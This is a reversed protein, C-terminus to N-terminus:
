EVDESPQDPYLGDLINRSTELLSVIINNVLFQNFRICLDEANKREFIYTKNLEDYSKKLEGDLDKDFAKKDLSKVLTQYQIWCKNATFRFNRVAEKVNEQINVDLNTFAKQDIEGSKPKCMADLECFVNLYAANYETLLAVEQFFSTLYSAAAIKKEDSM